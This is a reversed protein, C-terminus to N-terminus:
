ALPSQRRRFEFFREHTTENTTTCLLSHVSQLVQPLVEEWKSIPLDGDKLALKIGSWLIDNFKESQGNCNPTYVSTNNTPIHLSHLFSMFEYSMFSKGRDSHVYGCAGFLYFIQMLCSIVTQLEMNNCPFAFPFGSYEDIVTILYKNKSSSPLPGKSNISLREMLQTAKILRTEPPKCFKPKIKACITCENVVKRVDNLLFLCIKLDLFYYTRTIGPYCLGAHIGYLLSCFLLASYTSSM